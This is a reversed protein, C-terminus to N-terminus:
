LDNDYYYKVDPLGAQQHAVGYYKATVRNLADYAFFLDHEPHGLPDQGVACRLRQVL